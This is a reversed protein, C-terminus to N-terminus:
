FDWPQVKFNDDDSSGEEISRKLSEFISKGYNRLKNNISEKYVTVLMTSLFTAIEDAGSNKAIETEEPTVDKRKNVLDFLNKSQIRVGRFRDAAKEAMETILACFIDWAKKGERKLKEAQSKAYPILNKGDFVTPLTVPSSVPGGILNSAIKEMDINGLKGYNGFHQFNGVGVSSSPFGKTGMGSLGTPGIKLSGMAGPKKMAADIGKLLGNPGTEESKIEAEVMEVQKDTSSSLELFQNSEKTAMWEQVSNPLITRWGDDGTEFLLGLQVPGPLPIAVHKDAVLISTVATNFGISLGANADLNVNVDFQGSPELKSKICTFWHYRSRKTAREYTWELGIGMNLNKEIGFLGASGEASIYFTLTTEAQQNWSAPFKDGLFTMVKQLGEYTGSETDYLAQCGAEKFPSDPVMMNLTIQQGIRRLDAALLRKAVEVQLAENEFLEESILLSSASKDASVFFTLM